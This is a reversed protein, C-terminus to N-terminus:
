HAEEVPLLRAIISPEGPLELALYLLGDPGTAIDRIRGLDQLLLEQHLVRDGEVVMRRLEQQALSGVFLQNRWRPFADGGYFHLASVAISPTWHLVPGQMGPRQTHASVPTGDYNIGHTALPWGYNLSRKVHNLEDGGRPGHESEWLAGDAPNRALGQPNRHGYSWISGLARRGDVVRGVFPNDSPIGGDDLVRHLKGNPRSLDQAQGLEGREGFSFFLHPGDFLMRGGFNVGQESYTQPAAAFVTQHEVLRPQPGKLKLRARVVKTNSLPSDRWRDSLTLYLWRNHAFQPHPLVAMLGGEHEVRVPPVGAVRRPAGWGGARPAVVFLEGSRETFLMHGDPLFAISWPVDLGRVVAEIRYAHEQSHQVTTPLPQSQRPTPSGSRVATERILTALAQIEAASLAHGFAPMGAAPVGRRIAQALAATDPAPADSSGRAFARAKGGEMHEGHCAACLQEYLATAARPAPPQAQLPAAALALAAAALWRRHAASPRFLVQM